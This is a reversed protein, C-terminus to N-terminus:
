QVGRTPTPLEETPLLAIVPEMPEPITRSLQLQVASMLTDADTNSQPTEVVQRPIINPKIGIFPMLALVLATAAVLGWRWKPDSGKTPRIALSPRLAVRAEVRDTLANSFLSISKRSRDLEASCERCVDLHQREENSSQGVLCKAFQDESLHNSM